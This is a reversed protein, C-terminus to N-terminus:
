VALVTTPLAASIPPDALEPWYDRWDPVIRKVSVKGHVSFARAKHAPVRGLARWNNVTQPSVDLLRAMAAMGGVRDLCANFHIRNM